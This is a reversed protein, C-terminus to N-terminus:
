RLQPKRKTGRQSKAFRVSSKKRIGLSKKLAREVQKMTDEELCGMYKLLRTKDITQLQELLVMSEKPLGPVKPLLVHEPLDLRKIRSTILAVTVTPSTANLRDNQVILGPRDGSQESGVSELREVIYITGRKVKKQM